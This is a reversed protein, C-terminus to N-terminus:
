SKELVVKHDKKKVYTYEHYTDKGFHLIRSAIVFLPHVISIDEHLVDPPEQSPEATTLSVGKQGLSIKM